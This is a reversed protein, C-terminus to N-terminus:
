RKSFFDLELELPNNNIVHLQARKNTPVRASIPRGCKVAIGASFEILGDSHVGINHFDWSFAM